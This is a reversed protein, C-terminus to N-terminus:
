QFHLYLKSPLYPNWYCMASRSYQPLKTTCKM